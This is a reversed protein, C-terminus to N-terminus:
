LCCASGAASVTFEPVSLSCAVTGRGSVASLTVAPPAEVGDVELSSALLLMFSLNMMLMAWLSRALALLLCRGSIAHVLNLWFVQGEQPLPFVFLSPSQRCKTVVLELPVRLILLGPVCPKFFCFKRKKDESEKGEKGQGQSRRQRRRQVLVWGQERADFGRMRNGITVFCPAKLNLLCATPQSTWGMIMVRGLLLSHVTM